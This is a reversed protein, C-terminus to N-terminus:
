IEYLRSAYKKNYVNLLSYYFNKSFNLDKTLNKDLKNNYKGRSEIKNM